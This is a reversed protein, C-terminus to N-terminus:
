CPYAEFMYRRLSEAEIENAKLLWDNVDSISLMGLLQNDNLVPLHRIRHERMMQMLDEVSADETISHFCNTM